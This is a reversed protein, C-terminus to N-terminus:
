GPLMMWALCSARGAAALKVEIVPAASTTRPLVASVSHSRQPDSRLQTHYANDSKHADDDSGPTDRGALRIGATFLGAQAAGGRVCAGPVLTEAVIQAKEEAPWRRRRGLATLLEVRRYKIKADDYIDFM